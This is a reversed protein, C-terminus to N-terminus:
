RGGGEQGGQGDKADGGGGGGQDGKAAPDDATGAVPGVESAHRVFQVLADVDTDSLGAPAPMVPPYGEVVKAQPKLISERVYNDDAKFTGGPNTTRERVYLDKFSPGGGSVASGDLSHCAKCGGRGDYLRRGYEIPSGVEALKKLQAEFADPELVVTKTNMRSHDKGCYEACFLNYEGLETPRVWATTYRGPVVDYKLRFAPVYMSHLVDASSMIFQYDKDKQLYLVDSVQGGPYVFTWVWTKAKVQIQTADRPAVRMDMYGEFGFWFIFGVLITPIVTWTVELKQNHTPGVPAPEDESRRRYKIVFYTMLGVILVFFFVSLWLIFHFIWDVEPGFSSAQAPFWVGGGQALVSAPLISSM